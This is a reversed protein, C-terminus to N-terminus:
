GSTLFQRLSEFVVDLNGVPVSENVTHALDAEGPGYNLAPIGRASLRAVDTWGQKSDRPAGTLKALRDIHINGEEVRGAPATDIIEFEDVGELHTGLRLHAEELTKDPAFRYNVNCEFRAPVINNAIGGEARTVTVVERFELGGVKVAEPTKRAMEGLWAAARTVANEGLWPRASHAASGNFAVRANMVGQCGLELKLDTPELVVGLESEELWKAEELVDELENEDHPGEEAAYFVGFVDFPGSTVASDELLHIMVALGAKMDSSGLGYLRDSEVRAPGQGQSPVTDTHGFLSILPAGGRHGVILSNGIRAVGQEGLSPLLREALSTALRGEQGTESPIDVLWTLTDVLNM